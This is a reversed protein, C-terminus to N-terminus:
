DQAKFKERIAELIREVFKVGKKKIVPVLLTIVDEATIKSANKAILKLALKKFM